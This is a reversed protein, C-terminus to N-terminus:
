DNENTRKIILFLWVIFAPMIVLVVVALLCLVLIEFLTM